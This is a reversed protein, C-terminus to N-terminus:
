YSLGLFNSSIANRRVLPGVASGVDRRIANLLSAMKIARCASPAKLFETKMRSRM